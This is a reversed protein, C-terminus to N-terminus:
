IFNKKIVSRNLQQYLKRNKNTKEQVLLKSRTIKYMGCEKYAYRGGKTIYVKLIIREFRKKESRIHRTESARTNRTRM